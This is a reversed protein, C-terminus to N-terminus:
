CPLAARPARGAGPAPWSPVGNARCPCGELWAPSVNGDSGGGHSALQPRPKPALEWPVGQQQRQVQHGPRPWRSRLFSGPARSGEGGGLRPAAVDWSTEGFARTSAERQLPGTSSGM